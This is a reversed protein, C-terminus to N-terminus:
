RQHRRQQQLPEGRFTGATIKVPNGDADKYETGDLNKVTQTSNLYAIVDPEGKDNVYGNDTLWQKTDEPVKDHGM